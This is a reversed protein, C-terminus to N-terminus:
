GETLLSRAHAVLLAHMQFRADGVPELLGRDALRRVSPKPDSVEWVAAMADLDFTAPKPAFAGLFAFHDRTEQDLRDTSKQLLVAVTPITQNALDIRDAPATAELVRAGDRLEKLLDTIGWGFEAETNLLRGAVRLALPLGELDRVLELSADPHTKIINPALTGLLEFGKENSLVPLVYVDEPTPALARAVEPIRTTVLLACGPGGIQFPVAHETEWVDDVILLMKKDKLLTRLRKIAEELTPTQTLSDVGLARGWTALASHLNPSEGLAVWLMGDPFTVSIDPDYALTGVITTKGVGPWGRIITLAQRTIQESDAMVIGIRLKLERLSQERGIVLGPLPPAIFPKEPYPRPQLREVLVTTNELSTHIRDFDTRYQVVDQYIKVLLWNHKVADGEIIEEAVKFANQHQLFIGM